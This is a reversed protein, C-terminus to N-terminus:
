FGHIEGQPKLELPNGGCTVSIECEKDEHCTPGQCVKTVTLELDCDEGSCVLVDGKKVKM